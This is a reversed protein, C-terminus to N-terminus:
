RAECNLHIDVQNPSAHKRRGSRIKVIGSLFFESVPKLFNFVVATFSQHQAITNTDLHQRGIKILRNHFSPWEDYKSRLHKQRDPSYESLIGKGPM